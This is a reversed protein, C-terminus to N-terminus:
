HNNLDMKIGAAPDFFEPKNGSDSINRNSLHLELDKTVEKCSEGQGNTVDLRIGGEKGIIVKLEHKKM